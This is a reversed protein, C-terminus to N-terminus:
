LSDKCTYQLVDTDAYFCVCVCVCVCVCIYICM